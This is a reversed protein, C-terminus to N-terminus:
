YEKLSKEEVGRFKTKYKKRNREIETSYYSKGTNEIQFQIIVAHDGSTEAAPTPEARWVFAWDSLGSHASSPPCRRCCSFSLSQSPCCGPPHELLDFFVM